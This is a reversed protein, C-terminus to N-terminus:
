YPNVLTRAENVIATIASDDSVEPTNFGLKRLLARVTPVDLAEFTLGNRQLPLDVGQSREFVMNQRFADFFYSGAECVLGPEAPDERTIVLGQDSSDVRLISTSKKLNVAVNLLPYEDNFVAAAVITAYLDRRVGALSWDKERGTRVGRRYEGYARCANEERPDM